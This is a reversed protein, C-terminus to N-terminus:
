ISIGRVLDLEAYVEHSLKKIRQAYLILKEGAKTPQLPRCRIVLPLGIADELSAIRQSVASQSIGLTEAASNFSGHDIVTVLSHLLSMNINQM